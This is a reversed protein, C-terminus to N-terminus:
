FLNSLKYSTIWVEHVLQWLASLPLGPSFTLRKKDRKWSITYKSSTKHPKIEKFVTEFLEVNVFYLTEKQFECAHTKEMM